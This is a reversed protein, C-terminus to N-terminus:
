RSGAVTNPPFGALINRVGEQVKEPLVQGTGSREIWGAWVQKHSTNDFIEVILKRDETTRVDTGHRVGSYVWGRRGVGVPYATYGWDSVEVRPLSEGRVHVVCDATERAAEALGKAAMSERVAQEIPQTLRLIAGPDVSAGSASFPLLAFTKFRAFDVARDHENHVKPMTSCGSLANVLAFALGLQTLIPLRKVRQQTMKM